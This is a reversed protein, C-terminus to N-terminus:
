LCSIQCLQRVIAGKRIRTVIVSISNRDESPMDGLMVSEHRRIERTIKERGADLPLRTKLHYEEKRNHLEQELSATNQKGYILLVEHAPYINAYLWRGAGVLYTRDPFQSSIVAICQLPM